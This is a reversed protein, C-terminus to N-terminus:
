AMVVGAAFEESARQIDDETFARWAKAFKLRVEAAKVPSLHRALNFGPESPGRLEYPDAICFINYRGLQKQHEKAPAHDWGVGSKRLRGVWGSAGDPGENISVVEHDWDFECAYFQWFGGLLLGVEQRLESSDKSVVGISPPLRECDQIRISLPACWKVCGRRLCFYILLIVVAYSTLYGNRSDTIGVQKSWAKLAVAAIRVAPNGTVYSRLLRSNVAGLLRFSLDFTAGHIGLSLDVTSPKHTVIPVRAHPICRLDKIEHRNKLKSMVSEVLRAENAPPSNGDGNIDCSIDLDASREALGTISSGFLFVLARPHDCERLMRQLEAAVLAKQQFSEDDDLSPAIGTVVMGWMSARAPTGCTDWSPLELLLERVEVLLAAAAIAEEADRAADREDVNVEELCPARGAACKEIGWWAAEAASRPGVVDVTLPRAEEDGGAKLRRMLNWPVRIEVDYEKELDRLREGGVGCLRGWKQQPLALKLIVHTTPDGGGALKQKPGTDAGSSSRKASNPTGARAWIKAGQVEGYYSMLAHRTYLQGDSPDARKEAALDWLWAGDVAGYWELLEDKTYLTLGASRPDARQEKTKTPKPM